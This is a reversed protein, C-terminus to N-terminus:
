GSEAAAKIRDLTSRMGDRLDVERDAIRMLRLILWIVVPSARRIAEYSETVITGDGDPRFRYRWVVEGAGPGTRSFAFEVGREAAVVTPKNSWRALGRRNWAKFRAGVAPGTAGDAWECRRCEPSWAGMRTVDAVLGYVREPTADIRTSVEDHTLHRTPV